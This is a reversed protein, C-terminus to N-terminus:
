ATQGFSTSAVVRLLARLAVAQDAGFADLFRAQAGDWAKHAVTYKERGKDTLHVLRARQDSPDARLVILGDRVLPKLTHTLATRDMILIQALTGLTPAAGARRFLEGLISHQGSTIGTDALERDYMLSVHRAARRLGSCNCVSGEQQVSVSNMTSM